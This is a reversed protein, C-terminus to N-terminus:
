EGNGLELDLQNEDKIAGAPQGALADDGLYRRIALRILELRSACYVRAANVSAVRDDLAMVMARPLVLKIPVMEVDRWKAVVPYVAVSSAYVADIEQSSVDPNSLRLSWWVGDDDAMTM